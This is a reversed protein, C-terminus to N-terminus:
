IVKWSYLIKSFRYFCIHVKQDCMPKEMNRIEEEKLAVPVLVVVTGKSSYFEWECYYRGKYFEYKNINNVRRFFVIENKKQTLFDLPLVLIRRCLYVVSLM